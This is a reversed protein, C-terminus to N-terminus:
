GAKKPRAGLEYQRVKYALTRIPMGLIEAARVQVGGCMALAEEVRARELARLEEHLSVPRPSSAAGSRPAGVGDNPRPEASAEPRISEPLDSLEITDGVSLQAAYEMALKLERVNGRFAHGLLHALAGDSLRAPPRGARARAEAVFHRALIPIERPRQRLPPLTMSAVRLRFLLDERFRRERVDSELDRHTAAVVRADVERERVDGLRQLRKSELFRLLKAQVREPLEGIEDLFLTGGHARELLGPKATKADSFAGAEHGFLESEALNDPIAACNITVLPRQARPSQHHLALAINEKGTGTEGLILVPLDTPALRRVLDFIRLMASDALVITREGATIRLLVEGALGVAGPKVSEAAARAGSILADVDCGDTPCASLGGRAHLGEGHLGELIRRACARAADASREPLGILIERSGAWGALDSREVLSLLRAEVRSRAPSGDGLSLALLSFPRGHDVARELEQDMRARLTAFDVMARAGGRQQPLLVFTVDGMTVVDGASLLRSGEVLDGNVRTGNHSGLDAVYVSGRSSMFRGHRRSIASSEFRLDAEATRGVLVVGDVPLPATFSATGSVVLLSGPQRLETSQESSFSETRELSEGMRSM